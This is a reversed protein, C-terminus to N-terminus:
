QVLALIQAALIKPTFKKQFTKYGNEGIKQAIDPNNKLYLIKQALDKADGPKMFLVDEGDKMIEKMPVTEATLYPLGLAISDYCKHPITRSLREHDELQGLSIHSSLMLDVLAEDSLFETILTLNKLNLRSIQLKIEKELFGSGKILVQVGQTELIKAATVVHRVGAEPLFQGRFLVTFEPRKQVGGHLRKEDLFYVSDDAGTYLVKYKESKGFKQEFYKRQEESEVLVVDSFTVAMWDMFRIYLTKPSFNSYQKRSIIVGEYMTCCMDFVVKKKSILQALPVVVHGTYGVVM